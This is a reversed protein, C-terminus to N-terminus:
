VSILKQMSQLIVRRLRLVMESKIKGEFSKCRECSEGLKECASRVFM